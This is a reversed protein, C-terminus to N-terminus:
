TKKRLFYRILLGLLFGCSMLAGSRGIVDGSATYFTMKQNGIPIGDEIVAEHGYPTPQLIEGKENIVCCHGMNASRVIPRRLEIARLSAFKAHQEYGPTDGWWGDNTVIFLANAGKKVYGTCYEGYISEYCVVPAIACTSDKNMFISREPQAGFGNASGGFKDFLPELWGFLMPYPMLEAGPVLKSKKYLPLQAASDGIIQTAANYVEFLTYTGDGNDQKRVSFAYNGEKSPAHRNYIKFADVGMVLHLKPYHKLFNKLASVAQNENWTDIDKLNFSTEPFILYDTTSDMKEHALRLFLRMQDERNEFKQYHPELNPNVSVIKIKDNKLYTNTDHQPISNLILASISLPGLLWVAIQISVTKISTNKFYYKDLLRFILINLLLIWLSGGFAGTYEYWQIWSPYQAFANGLTLWAWSIDWNLHVYEFGLWFIIFAGYKLIEDAKVRELIGEKYSWAPNIMRNTKHFLWFPIAMFFANLYNAIFGPILAANAVWWTSGINWIVFANFAYKLIGENNRHTSKETLEKEIILLPVFGIFMFPTLPSNPFGLALFIGSLSSLVLWRKNYKKEFILILSAWVAIMFPFTWWEWLPLRYMKFGCIAVIIFCIILTIKKYKSFFANITQSKNETLFTHLM